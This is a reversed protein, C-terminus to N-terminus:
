VITKANETALFAKANEPALLLFPVNLRFMPFLLNFVLYQCKSISLKLIVVLELQFISILLHLNSCSLKIEIRVVLCSLTAIAM